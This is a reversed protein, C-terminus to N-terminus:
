INDTNIVEGITNVDHNTSEYVTDPNASLFEQLRAQTEQLQNNTSILYKKTNEVQTRLSELEEINAKNLLKFAEKNHINFALMTADNGLAETIQRSASNKILCKVTQANKTLIAIHLPTLKMSDQANVDAKNEILYEAYFSKEKGAAQHLPTGGTEKAKQNISEPNNKIEDIFVRIDEQLIAKILPSHEYSQNNIEDIKECLHKFTLFEEFGNLDKSM